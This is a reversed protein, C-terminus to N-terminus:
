SEADRSARCADIIALSTSSYGDQDAWFDRVDAPIEITVKRPPDPWWFVLRSDSTYSDVSPPCVPVQDAAFAVRGHGIKRAECLTTLIAEAPTKLPTPTDSM